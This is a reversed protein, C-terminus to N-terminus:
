AFGAQRMPIAPRGVVAFRRYHRCSLRALDPSRAATWRRWERDIRLPSEPNNVLIDIRGFEKAVQDVASSIQQMNRMDMQLALAKRGMNRIEAALGSDANIDRLGLAVDAGAHALALSIARGLGRAAATVLAVQGTLGFQPYEM